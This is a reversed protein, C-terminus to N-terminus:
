TVKAVLLPSASRFYLTLTGTLVQDLKRPMHGICLWMRLFSGPKPECEETALKFNKLFNDKFKHKIVSTQHYLSVQVQALSFHAIRTGTVREKNDWECMPSLIGWSCPIGPNWLTHSIFTLTDPLHMVYIATYTLTDVAWIPLTKWIFCFKSQVCFSPLPTSLFM